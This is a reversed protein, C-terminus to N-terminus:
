PHPGRGTVSESAPCLRFRVYRDVAIGMGHWVAGRRLLDGGYGSEVAFAHAFTPGINLLQRDGTEREDAAVLAAKARCSKVVARRTAAPQCAMVEGGHGELWEFFAADNILGYKVVEAYGAGLERGALTAVM